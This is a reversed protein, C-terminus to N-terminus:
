PANRQRLGEERFKKWFDQSSLLPHWCVSGDSSLDKSKTLEIKLGQIKSNKKSSRFKLYMYGRICFIYIYKKNNVHLTYVWARQFPFAQILARAPSGQFSLIKCTSCPTCIMWIYVTCRFDIRMLHEWLIRSALAICVVASRQWM